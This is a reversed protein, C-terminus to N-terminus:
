WDQTEWPREEQPADINKRTDPRELIPKSNPRELVPDLGSTLGAEQESINVKSGPPLFHGDGLNVHQNAQHQSMSIDVLLSFLVM